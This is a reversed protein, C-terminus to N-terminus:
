KIGSYNLSPLAIQEFITSNQKLRGFNEVLIVPKITYFLYNLYYMLSSNMYHNSIYRSTFTDRAQLIVYKKRKVSLIM